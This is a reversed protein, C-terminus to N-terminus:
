GGIERRPTHINERGADAPKTWLIGKELAREVCSYPNEKWMIQTIPFPPHPCASALGSRRGSISLACVHACTYRKHEIIEIVESDSSLRKPKGKLLPAEETESDYDVAPGVDQRTTPQPPGREEM